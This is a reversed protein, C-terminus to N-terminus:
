ELADRIAKIEASFDKRGVPPVLTDNLDIELQGLDVDEDELPVFNFYLNDPYKQLMYHVKPRKNRKQEQLYDRFRKKLTRSASVDGTIGVYMIYGHVPFHDNIHRVIFAYIGRKDPINDKYADTFRVEEWELKIDVRSSNWREPSLYFSRREARFREVAEVFAVGDLDHVM